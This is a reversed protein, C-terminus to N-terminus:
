GSAEAEQFQLCSNSEEAKPNIKQMGKGEEKTQRYISKGQMIHKYQRLAGIRAKAKLHRAIRLCIPPDHL